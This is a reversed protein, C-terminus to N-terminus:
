HSNKKKLKKKSSKQSLDSTCFRFICYKNGPQPNTGNQLGSLEEPSPKQAAMINRWELATHKPDVPM